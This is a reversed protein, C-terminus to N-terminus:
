GNRRRLVTAAARFPATLRWSRSGEITALERTLRVLESQLGEAHATLATHADTVQSIHAFLESAERHLQAVNHRLAELEREDNSPRELETPELREPRSKLLVAGQGGPTETPDHRELFLVEFQRGWHERIWWESHFVVPGGSDWPTWTKIVNMGVRDEDWPGRGFDPWLGENLFTAFLLGDPKLVRHLELLWGAWQDTLHTFVSLAYVVDFFGDPQPLQPQEGSLFAHLPPFFHETLWAISPEDIDCGHFEAHEAEALFHRLTRGAGCGFDLVRKGEWSWEDPLLREIRERSRRGIAEYEAAVDPADIKGVRHLLETPPLPRETSV